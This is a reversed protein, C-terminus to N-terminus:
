RRGREGGAVREGTQPISMSVSPSLVDPCLLLPPHFSFRFSPPGAPCSALASPVVVAAALYSTHRCSSSSSSPIRSELFPPIFVLHLQLPPLTLSSNVLVQHPNHPPPLGGGGKKAHPQILPESHISLLFLKKLVTVRYAHTRGDEQRCDEEEGKEKWEM